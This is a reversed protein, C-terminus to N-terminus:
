SQQVYSHRTNTLMAALITLLAADLNPNSRWVCYKCTATYLNAVQQLQYCSWYM